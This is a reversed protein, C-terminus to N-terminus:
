ELVDRDTVFGTDGVLNAHGGNVITYRDNGTGMDLLATVTGSVNVTDAGGRGLVTDKIDGGANINFTDAGDAGILATVGPFNGNPGFTGGGDANVNFTTGANQNVTLSNTETTLGLNAAIATAGPLAGGGAAATVQVQDTGDGLNFTISNLVLNA